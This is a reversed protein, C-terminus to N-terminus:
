SPGKIAACAECVQQDMKKKLLSMQQAHSEVLDTMADSSQNSRRVATDQVSVDNAKKLQEVQGRLIEM